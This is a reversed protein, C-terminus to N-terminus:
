DTKGREGITERQIYKVEGAEYWKTQINRQERKTCEAKRGQRERERENRMKEKKRREGM